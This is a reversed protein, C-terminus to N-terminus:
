ASYVRQPLPYIYHSGTSFKMRNVAEEQVITDKATTIDIDNENNLDYSM